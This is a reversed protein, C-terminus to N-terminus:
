KEVEEIKGLRRVHREEGSFETQLWIKVIEKVSEVDLVRAGLCLINTNDHERSLRATVEDQILAARIGKIKNAAICVGVGTGCILIGLSDRESAVKQALPIAYDPYDDQQDMEKPGMDEYPCGLGDLFLGIEEKLNYGAHDSAIYLM